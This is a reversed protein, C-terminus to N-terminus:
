NYNINSRRLRSRFNELFDYFFIESIIWICKWPISIFFFYYIRSKKGKDMIMLSIVQHTGSKRWFHDFERIKGSKFISRSIGQNERVSALMRLAVWPCFFVLEGLLLSFIDKKFMFFMHFTPRVNNEFLAGSPFFTRWSPRVTKWFTRGHYNKQAMQGIACGLHM